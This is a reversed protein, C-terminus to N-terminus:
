GLRMQIWGLADLTDAVNPHEPGLRARYIDLTRQCLAEAQEFKGEAGALRAQNLLVAALDLPAPHRECFENASRYLAAAASYDGRTHKVAGLYNMTRAIVLPESYAEAQEVASQFLSEAEVYRGQAQLQQGTKVLQNLAKDQAEIQPVYVAAALFGLAVGPILATSWNCGSPREHM